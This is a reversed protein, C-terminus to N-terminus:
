YADVVFHFYFLLFFHMSNVVALVFFVVCLSVHQYDKWQLCRSIFNLCPNWIKSLILLSIFSNKYISPFVVRRVYFIFIFICAQLQVCVCFFRERKVMWIVIRNKVEDCVCAPKERDGEEVTGIAILSIITVRGFQM